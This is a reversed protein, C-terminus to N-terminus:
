DNLQTREIEYAARNLYSELPRKGLLHDLLLVAHRALADPKPPTEQEDPDHVGLAGALLILLVHPDVDSQWVAASRVSATLVERVDDGDLGDPHLDEMLLRVVTGLVLGVQAPDIAGLANTAAAFAETDRAGAAAVADSTAAAIPRAPGPLHRWQGNM